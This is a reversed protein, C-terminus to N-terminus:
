GFVSRRTSSITEKVLEHIDPDIIPLLKDANVGIENLEELIRRKASAPIEYRRMLEGLITAEVPVFLGDNPFCLFKGGQRIRRMEGPNGVLDELHGPFHACVFKELMMPDISNIIDQSKESATINLMTNRLENLWLRTHMKSSTTWNNPLLLLWLHGDKDFHNSCAFFLASEPYMSWDLLRSPFGLHRMQILHYWTPLFRMEIRRPINGRFATSFKGQSDLKMWQCYLEREYQLAEAITSPERTLTPINQYSNASHGRYLRHVTGLTNYENSIISNFQDLSEIIRNM